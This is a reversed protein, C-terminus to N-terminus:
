KIFVPQLPIDMNEFHKSVTLARNRHTDRVLGDHLLDVLFDISDRGFRFRQRLEEDSFGQELQDICRFQRERRINQPIIMHPANILNAM